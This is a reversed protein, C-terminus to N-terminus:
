CHRHQVRLQRCWWPVGTNSRVEAPSKRGGGAQSLLVRPRRYDLPLQTCGRQVLGNCLQAFLRWPQLLPGLAGPVSVQGAWSGGARAEPWKVM